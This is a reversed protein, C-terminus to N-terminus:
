RSSTHSFLKTNWMPQPSPSPLIPGITSPAPMDSVSYTFTPSSFLRMAIDAQPSPMSIPIGQKLLLPSSSPPKSVINSPYPFPLSSSLTEMKPMAPSSCDSTRSQNVEFVSPNPLDTGTSTSASLASLWSVAATMTENHTKVDLRKNGLRSDVPSRAASAQLDDSTNETKMKTPESTPGGVTAIAHFPRVTSEQKSSSAQISRSRAAKGRSKGKSSAEPQAQNLQGGNASPLSASPPLTFNTRAKAGRLKRAAADYAKAADEATDFTGLWHRCRGIRDRIEASWRGWPRKRVGRFVRGNFSGNTKEAETDAYDGSTLTTHSGEEHIARDSLRSAIDSSSSCSSTIKSLVNNERMVEISRPITELPLFHAQTQTFAALVDQVNKVSNCSSTSVSASMASTLSANTFSYRSGSGISSGGTSRSSYGLDTFSRSSNASDTIESRSSNNGTGYLIHRGVVEELGGMERDSDLQFFDACFDGSRRIVEKHVNACQCGRPVFSDINYIDCMHKQASPLASVGVTPMPDSSQAFDHLCLVDESLLSLPHCPTVYGSLNTKWHSTSPTLAFTNKQALCSACSRDAAEQQLSELKSPSTTSSPVFLDDLSWKPKSSPSLSRKFMEHLAM